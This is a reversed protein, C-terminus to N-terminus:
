ASLAEEVLPPLNEELIYLVMREKKKTKVLGAKRLISLQHSIGSVDSRLIDAIDCVSLYSEKALLYILKLRIEGSLIVAQELNAVINSNKDLFEQLNRIKSPTSAPSLCKFNKTNIIKKRM